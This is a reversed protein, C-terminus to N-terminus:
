KNTYQSSWDSHELRDTFHFDIEKCRQIVKIMIQTSVRVKPSVLFPSFVEEVELVLSFMAKLSSLSGLM